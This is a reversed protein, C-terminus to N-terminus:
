LRHIQLWPKVDMLSDSHHISPHTSIFRFGAGNGVNEGLGIDEHACQSVNDVTKRKSLSCLTWGTINDVGLFM